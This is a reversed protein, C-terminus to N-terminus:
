PSSREQGLRQFIMESRLSAAGTKSGPEFGLGDRGPAGRGKDADRQQQLIRNM